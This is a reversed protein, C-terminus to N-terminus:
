RPRGNRRGFAPDADMRNEATQESFIEEPASKRRITAFVPAIASQGPSFELIM